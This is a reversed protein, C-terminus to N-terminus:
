AYAVESLLIGTSRLDEVIGELDKLASEPCILEVIGKGGDVVTLLAIEEYSELIAKVFGIDSRDMLVRITVERPFNM